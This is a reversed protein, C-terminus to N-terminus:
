YLRPPEGKNRKVARVQGSWQNIVQKWQGSELYKDISKSLDFAPLYLGTIGKELVGDQIVGEERFIVIPLGLQFALATEIQAWPSTFYKGSINQLPKPKHFPLTRETGREIHYRRLAITILGNCEMMLRRCGTLPADSDYDTIGLTRAKLGLNDSLYKRVKHVFKEQETTYPQSYSMFVSINM